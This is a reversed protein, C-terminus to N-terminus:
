FTKRGQWLVALVFINVILVIAGASNLEKTLEYIEIPIYIGASAMGFLWAWRMGHWLGFAEILRIISYALAGLGLVFLHRNDLHSALELFIRPYHNAPNLHFHLILQEAVKEVNAHVFRFLACATAFVLIGKSAEIVAVIRLDINPSKM